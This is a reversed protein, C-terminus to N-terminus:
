IYFMRTRLDQHVTIDAATASDQDSDTDFLRGLYRRARECALDAYYAPPCISVAKTARGYLYCMNHTLDEVTDAFNESEQKDNRFIEDFMVHYHAPRATGQLASHAQLFFDWKRSETVGRDVVTGPLPSGSKTDQDKKCTPYFRTHHRKGVVIITMKPFEGAPYKNFCAKRLLPLEKELVLDYQAESVGDRYVLINKPLKDQNNAKWIDLRTDLMQTLSDVMEEKAEAQLKLIAPFQGLTKSKSAVMAAVSPANKASGPSPHTVDIGVVMTEGHQIVGLKTKDLSHNTGGFKLNVKLAINAWTQVNNDKMFTQSVACQTFIGLKVDCLHKVHNYLESDAKNPIIVLMFRGSQSAPALRLRNVISGDISSTIPCMHGQQFRTPEPVQLGSVRMVSAFQRVKVLLHEEAQQGTAKRKDDHWYFEVFSWPGLRAGQVFKVDRMNWTGSAASTFVNSGDPRADYNIRPASLIRGPVTLLQTNINIGFTSMKTNVQSHWGVVQPGMDTISKANREADRVAFNIMKKTQNPSLKKNYAQGRMVECVEVPLYSPFEKNGVNVVPYAPDLNIKYEATSDTM